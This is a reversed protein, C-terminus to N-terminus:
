YKEGVGSSIPSLDKNKQVAYLVKSLTVWSCELKMIWGKAFRCGGM